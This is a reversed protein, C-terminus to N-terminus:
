VRFSFRAFSRLVLRKVTAIFATKAETGHGAHRGVGGRRVLRSSLNRRRVCVWTNQVALVAVTSLVGIAIEPASMLVQQPPQLLLLLVSATAEQSTGNLYSSDGPYSTGRATCNDCSSPLVQLNTSSTQMLVRAQQQDMRGITM